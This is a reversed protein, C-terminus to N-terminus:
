QCQYKTVGCPRAARKGKKMAYPTITSKWAKPLDAILGGHTSSYEKMLQRRPRGPQETGIRYPLVYKCFLEFDNDTVTDPMRQWAEFAANINGILIMLSAM